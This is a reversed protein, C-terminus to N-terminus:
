LGRAVTWVCVSQAGAELCARACASTTSGTTLVDDILLIRRGNVCSKCAVSFANEVNSRRASRTLMTQSVTPAIRKLAHPWFPKGLYLSVKEALLASQNYGRERERAHYLPVAIVGDWGTSAPDDSLAQCLRPAFLPLLWLAGQYKFRHLLDQMLANVIWVSRASEFHFRIGRCNHCKFPQFAEGDFPFGCQGCYPPRVPSLQEICRLCVYGDSPRAAQEGCVQCVEPFVLSLPAQILRRVGKPLMIESFLVPSLVEKM